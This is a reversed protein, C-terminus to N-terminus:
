GMFSKPDLHLNEILELCLDNTAGDEIRAAFDCIDNLYKALIESSLKSLCKLAAIQGFQDNTRLLNIFYNTPYQFASKTIREGLQENSNTDNSNLM